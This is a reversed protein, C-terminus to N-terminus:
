VGVLTGLQFCCKFKKYACVNSYQEYLATYPARYIYQYWEHSIFSVISVNKLFVYICNQPCYGYVYLSKILMICIYLNTVPKHPCCSSGKDLVYIYFVLLFLHVSFM